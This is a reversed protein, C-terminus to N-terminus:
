RESKPQQALGGPGLGVMSVVVSAPQRMPPQHMPAHLEIDHWTSTQSHATGAMQLLGGATQLLPSASGSGRGPSSDCAGRQGSAGTRAGNATTSSCNPVGRDGMMISHTADRRAGGPTTCTHTSTRLRHAPAGGITTCTHTNVGPGAGPLHGQASSSESCPSSDRLTCPEGKWIDLQHPAPPMAMNLRRKVCPCCCCLGIDSIRTVSDPVM